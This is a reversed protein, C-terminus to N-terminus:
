PCLMQKGMSTAATNGALSKAVTTASSYEFGHVFDYDGSGAEEKAPRSSSRSGARPARSDVKSCGSLVSIFLTALAMFCKLAGTVAHALLCHVPALATRRGPRRRVVTRHGPRCRVTARHRPRRRKVTSDFRPHRQGAGTVARRSDANKGARRGVEM